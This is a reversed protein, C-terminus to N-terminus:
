CGCSTQHSLCELKEFPSAGM